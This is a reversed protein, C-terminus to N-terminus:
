PELEAEYFDFAGDARLHFNKLRKDMGASNVEYLLFAWPADNWAIRQAEDYIAKRKKADPEALAKDLCDDFASNSYYGANTLLEGSFRSAKNDGGFPSLM